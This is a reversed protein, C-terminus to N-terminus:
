SRIPHLSKHFHFFLLSSLALGLPGVLMAKQLGIVDSLVGLFYHMLVLTLSITALTISLGRDAMPGFSHTLYDMIFAFLPAMTFGVLMLVEPWYFLGLINLVLSSLLSGQLIQFSSLSPFKFYTFLLRGVFLCVFFGTLYLSSNAPNLGHERQLLLVLRSSVVLEAQVYCAAAMAAVAFQRARLSVNASDGGQMESSIKQVKKVLVSGALVISGLTILLWFGWRWHGRNEYVVFALLPALLSSFAYMSHLGSFLRRRVEVPSHNKIIIHQAVSVTGLGVGFIADGLLLLPWSSAFAMGVFGLVTLALAGKLIALAGWRQVFSATLSSGVFSALSPIAFFLGGQSDSLSYEKLLDPFYPNRGNDFLGLAFLCFYAFIVSPWHVLSTKM